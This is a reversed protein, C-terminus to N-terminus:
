FIWCDGFLLEQFACFLVYMDFRDIGENYLFDYRDEDSYHLELNAMLIAVDFNVWQEHYDELWFSKVLDGGPTRVQKWKVGYEACWRQGEGTETVLTVVARCVSDKTMRDM